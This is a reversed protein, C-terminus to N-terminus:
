GVTLDLEAGVPRGENELRTSAVGQAALTRWHAGVWQEADFRNTFVPGVPREVRSGDRGLLVWQWQPRVSM